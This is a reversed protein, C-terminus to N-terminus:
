RVVARSRQAIITRQLILHAVILVAHLVVFLAPPLSLFDSRCWLRSGNLLLAGGRLRLGDFLRTRDLGPLVLRPWNFLRTNFLGTGYLLLPLELLRPGNLLGARGNFLCARNFLRPRNWLRSLDFLRARLKACSFWRTRNLTRDLLGARYLRRARSRLRPWCGRRWRRLLARIITTPFRM